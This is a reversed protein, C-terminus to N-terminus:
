KRSQRLQRAIELGQERSCGLCQPYLKQPVGESNLASAPQHDPVFNNSKTGPEFTGCTHCGTRSGIENISAREDRTFDRASSRAPISDGAFEGIGTSGRPKCMDSPGAGSRGVPSGGSGEYPVMRRRTISDNQLGQPDVGGLPNGDVYAYQNTGGDVGIPDPQTYRGVQPDYYRHWNYHLGSEADFFQGPFRLNITTKVGDGDPDENPASSGFADSTWTWVVKGASDTGRRPTNLSDVELYVIHQSTATDHFIVAAPTDDKWVYTVLAQGARAGSGAIEQFLHGNPDHVYLTIAPIGAPPSVLTKQGRLGLHDYIYSAVQAGNISVKSLQGDDNYSLVRTVLSGNLRVRESTVNGSADHVVAQGNRTALRNSNDKITYSGSADGTRNGNADYSISQSTPGTEAKLRDLADYKFTSATGDRTVGQVNGRADHTISETATAGTTQALASEPQAIALALLLLMAWMLPAFPAHKARSRRGVMAMLSGGLSLLAWLPLPADGDEGGVSASSLSVSSGSSMGSGMDFDRDYVRRNGFTSRDAEGTAQYTTESVVVAEQGNLLGLVQSARGEADRGLAVSQNDSGVSASLRDEGDYGWQTQVAGLPMAAFRQVQGTVNGFADYSLYRTGLSNSIQCLHGLGNSCTLPAAAASADWRWTQDLSVDAGTGSHKVSILRNLADYQLTQIFGRADNRKILNGAADFTQTATGADSVEQLVQGFGDRQFTWGAGNPASLAQLDDNAKPTLTTPKDGGNLADEIRALQDLSNYVRTDTPQATDGYASVQPRKTTTPNGQADYGLETISDQGNIQRILKSMRNLADFERRILLATGGDANTWAERTVNGANDLTYSVGEGSGSTMGILRHADDYQFTYRRGAAAGAQGADTSVVGGPFSIEDLLGRPDYHYTITRTSAGSAGLSRSTLFGRPSYTYTVSLGNADTMALLHGAKDYQTFSAVQGMANTLSKLDGMTHGVADPDAGKFVTDTWYDYTTKDVVDTRPGDETLVQGYQNYTYTWTRSDPTSNSSVGTGVTAGFGQAGTADTTSQEVRKCVVAIPKGFYLARVTTSGYMASTCSAIKNADFPDPQGNYVWTTIKNPEARKTELSWDPHWQTTVKRAGSPLTAGEPTVTGCDVGGTGGSLGEVRVKELNPVGDVVATNVYCTRHQNFDDESAKNGAADYTIASSSAGCGSGAPQKRGTNRPFKLSLDPANYSIDEGSPGIVAPAGQVSWDRYRKVRGTTADVTQSTIVKPGDGPYSATFKNVGGAHETSVVRGSDDYVFTAFQKGAEDVIGTLAWNKNLGTNEYNFQLVSGDQWTVKSPNSYDTGAYDFSINRGNADTISTIALTGDPASAFSIKVKRGFQDVFGNLNASSPDRTASIYSGNHRYRGGPFGSAYFSDFTNDIRNTFIYVGSGYYLLNRHTKSPNRSDAAASWTTGNFVFTAMRGDSMMANATKGYNGPIGLDTQWNGRWLSSAFHNGPAGEGDPERTIEKRGSNYNIKMDMWGLRVGLNLEEQKIGTLPHIPNGDSASCTEESEDRTDVDADVGVCGGHGGAVSRLWIMGPQLCECRKTVKDIFPNIMNDPNKPCSIDSASNFEVGNRRTVKCIGMSSESQYRQGVDPWYYGILNSSVIVLDPDKISANEDAMIFDCAESASSFSCINKPGAVTVCIFALDGARSEQPLSGFIIAFLVMLRMANLSQPRYPNRHAFSSMCALVLRGILLINERVM